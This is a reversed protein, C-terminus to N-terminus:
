NLERLRTSSALLLDHRGTLQELEIVSLLEQHLDDLCRAVYLAEHHGAAARPVAACAEAGLERLEGRCYSAVVDNLEAVNGPWSYSLLDPLVEDRFGEWCREYEAGACHLWIQYSCLIPVDELRDRLRPIDIHYCSVLDLFSADLFCGEQLERLEFCSGLILRTRASYGDVSPVSPEILHRSLRQMLAFSLHEVGALYCTGGASQGLLGAASPSGFLITEVDASAVQDCRISQFPARATRGVAHIKRAALEKGTGQAGTLLVPDDLLSVGVIFDRLEQIALSDGLLPSAKHLAEM